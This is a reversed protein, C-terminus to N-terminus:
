KRPPSLGSTEPFTEEGQGASSVEVSVPTGPLQTTAEARDRPGFASLSLKM